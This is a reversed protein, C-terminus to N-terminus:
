DCIGNEYQWQALKDVLESIEIWHMRIKESGFDKEAAVGNNTIVYDFIQRAVSSVKITESDILSSILSIYKMFITKIPPNKMAFHRAFTERFLFFSLTLILINRLNSSFLILFWTLEHKAADEGGRKYIKDKLLARRNIEVKFPDAPEEKNILLRIVSSIRPKLSQQM